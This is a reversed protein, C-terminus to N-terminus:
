EGQIALAGDSGRCRFEGSSCSVETKLGQRERGDVAVEVVISAQGAVISTAEIRETLELRDIHNMEFAGSLARGPHKAASRGPAAEKEFVEGM